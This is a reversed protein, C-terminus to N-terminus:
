EAYWEDPAPAACYRCLHNREDRDYEYQHGTEGDHHDATGCCDMCIAREPHDNPWTAVSKGCVRCPPAESM